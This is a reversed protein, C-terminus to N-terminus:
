GIPSWTSAPHVFAVDNVYGSQHVISQMYSQPEHTRHFARQWEALEAATTPQWRGDMVAYGSYGLAALFEFTAGIDAMREELEVFIVPHHMELTAAAGRLVAHEHGEVDIKVFRVDDLGFDDLRATRVQISAAGETGPAISATGESGTGLTKLVLDAEGVVDSLAEGHVTVNSTVGARLAAAVKPNPEFSEVREVRRSLWYTWPGYWAGIDIACGTPDCREIINRMEPEARRHLRATVPHFWRHPTVDAVAALLRTPLGGNSSRKDSTSTM